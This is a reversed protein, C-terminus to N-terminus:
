HSRVHIRRGDYYAGEGKIAWFENGTALNRIFATHMGCLSGTGVAMSISYFPIEAISNSTGDVPDLVLVESGGNDVFGIEESLVNIPINHFEIYRLVANEAIKDIESTPTGDDGICVENGRDCPEPILSIAEEVADAIERLIKLDM